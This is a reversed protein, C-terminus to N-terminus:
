ANGRQMDRYHSGWERSVQEDLLTGLWHRPNGKVLERVHELEAGESNLLIAREVPGLDVSFIARGLPSTYLAQEPRRLEQAIIYPEHPRLGLRIYAKMVDDDLAVPNQTFVRTPLEMIVKMSRDDLVDMPSQTALIMSLGRKAWEKALEYMIKSMYDDGLFSWAEDFIALSPRVNARRDILYLLHRFIPLRYKADAAGLNATEFIQVPRDDIASHSSNLLKGWPSTLYSEIVGRIERRQTLSAVIELNRESRGALLEIAKSLAIRSDLTPEVNSLRMMQEILSVAYERHAPGEHIYAFPSLGIGSDEGLDYHAAIGDSALAAALPYMAYRRDFAFIQADRYRLHQAIILKLLASKGSRSPGIFLAHGVDGFHHGFRFPANGVTRGVFTLPSGPPYKRSQHMTPGSWVSTINVLHAANKNTMTVPTVNAVTEGPLSGLFARLAGTKRVSSLFGDDKLASRVAQAREDAEEETAAHVVFVPTVAAFTVERKELRQKADSADDAYDIANRDMRRADPTNGLLSGLFGFMQQERGTITSSIIKEAEERALLLVRLSYRYPFPLSVLRGRALMAPSTFAPPQTVQIVRVHRDGVVLKADGRVEVSGLMADLRWGPPAPAVQASEGTICYHLFSAQEDVERSTGVEGSVARTQMRRLSMRHGLSRELRALGDDFTAKAESLAGELGVRPDSFLWTEEPSRPRHRLDGLYHISVVQRMEYHRENRSGPPNYAAFRAEDLIRAARAPFWGERPDPYPAAPVRYVDFWLSWGRDFEGLLDALARSLDNLEHPRAALPNPGVYEYSGLLGGQKTAITADDIPVLWPLAYALGGLDAPHHMVKPAFM